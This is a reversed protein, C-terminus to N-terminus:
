EAPCGYMKVTGGIKKEEMARKMAVAAALATTGHMNHGCGHGPAGEKVPEKYPVAKQSLGALADLEGMLGITPGKGNSWTAVFATPMDAVGREVRFGQREIWDAFLKSTSYEQLGVEAFGWAKDSIETIKKENEDIWSFAAEKVM